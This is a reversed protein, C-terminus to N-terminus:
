LMKLYEPICVYSLEIYLSSRFFKLLYKDLIEGPMADLLTRALQLLFPLALNFRTRDVRVDAHRAKAGTVRLSADILPPRRVSICSDEADANTGGQSQFIRHVPNKFPKIGLYSTLIWSKDKRTPGM